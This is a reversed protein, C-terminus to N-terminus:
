FFQDRGEDVWEAGKCYDVKYRAFKDSVVLGERYNEVTVM